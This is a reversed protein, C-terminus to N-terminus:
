REVIKKVLALDPIIFEPKANILEKRSSWSSRGYVVISRCKTKKALIIDAVRDGVYFCEKPNIKRKKLYETIFKTKNDFNDACYIEDFERKLKFHKL